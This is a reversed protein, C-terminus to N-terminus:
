RAGRERLVLVEDDGLVLGGAGLLPSTVEVDKEASGEVVLEGDLREEELEEGGLSSEDENSKGLSAELAHTSLSEDM